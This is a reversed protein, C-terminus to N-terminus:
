LMARAKEVLREATIGFHAYVDKIPGSAGFTEMGLFDGKARTGREGYLWRDWGFRVGAEIGVRVPGAPLVRKRYAEDQEEFREWCPLSVVRTGIGDAELIERAAMAIEVESGSGILIVRRRSTAEALIYGGLATQNKAKHQ